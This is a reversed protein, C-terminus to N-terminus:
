CTHADPQICLRCILWGRRAIDEALDEVSIGAKIRRVNAQSLILKNFPIDQSRSLTIKPSSTKM